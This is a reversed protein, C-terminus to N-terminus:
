ESNGSPGVPVSDVDTPEDAVLRGSSDFKRGQLLKAKNRRLLAAYLVLDETSMEAPKLVLKADREETQVQVVEPAKGYARDTLLQAAKAAEGASIGGAPGDRLFDVCIKTLVDLALPGRHRYAEALKPPTLRRGKFRVRGSVPDVSERDGRVLSADVPRGTAGTLRDRVHTPKEGGLDDKESRPRKLPELPRPSSLAANIAAQLDRNKSAM